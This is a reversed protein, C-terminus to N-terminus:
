PQGVEVQKVCKGVDKKCSVDVARTHIEGNRLTRVTDRAFGNETRQIVDSKAGERGDFMTYNSERNVTGAKKDRSFTVDRTAVDGDKNTATTSRTFGDETQTVV